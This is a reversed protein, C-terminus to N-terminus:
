LRNPRCGSRVSSKLMGTSFRFDFEAVSIGNVSLYNGILCGVLRLGVGSDQPTQAFWNGSIIRLDRRQRFTSNLAFPSCLTM